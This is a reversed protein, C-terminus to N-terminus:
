LKVVLYEQQGGGAKRATTTAEAEVTPSSPVEVPATANLAVSFLQRSELSEFMTESRQPKHHGCTLSTGPAGFNGQVPCRRGAARSAPWRAASAGARGASERGEVGDQDCM